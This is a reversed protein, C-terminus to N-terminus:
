ASPTSPKAEYVEIFGQCTCPVEVSRLTIYFAGNRKAVVVGDCETITEGRKIHIRERRMQGM